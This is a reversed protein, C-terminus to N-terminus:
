KTVSAKEKPGEGVMGLCGIIALRRDFSAVNYVVQLNRRDLLNPIKYKLIRIMEQLKNAQEITSDSSLILHGFVIELHRVGDTLLSEVTHRDGILPPIFFDLAKLEEMLKEVKRRMDEDLEMILTKERDSLDVRPCWKREFACRQNASCERGADTLNSFEEFHPYLSLHLRKDITAYLTQSFFLCVVTVLFIKVM